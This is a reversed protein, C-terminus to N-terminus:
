CQPAARWPELGLHSLLQEIRQLEQERVAVNEIWGIANLVSVYGLDFSFDLVSSLARDPWGEQRLFECLADYDQSGIDVGLPFGGRLMRVTSLLSDPVGNTSPEALLHLTRFYSNREEISDGPLMQLQRHLAETDM